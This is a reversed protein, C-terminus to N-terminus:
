WDLRLQITEDFYLEGAYMGAALEEETLIMSPLM